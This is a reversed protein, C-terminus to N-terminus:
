TDIWCWSLLICFLWTRSGQTNYSYHATCHACISFLYYIIKELNYWNQLLNSWFHSIKFLRLILPTTKKFSFWFCCFITEAGGSGPTLIVASVAAAGIFSHPSRSDPSLLWWCNATAWLVDLIQMEVHYSIVIEVYRSSLLDCYRLMDVHYYNM